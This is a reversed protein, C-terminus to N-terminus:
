FRISKGTEREKEQFEFSNKCKCPFLFALSHATRRRGNRADRRGTVQGGHRQRRRRRARRRYVGRRQRGTLRTLWERGFFHGGIVAAVALRPLERQQVDDDDRQDHGDRQHDDAQHLEFGVRVRLGLLIQEESRGGNTERDTEHRQGDAGQPAVVEASAARLGPADQPVLRAVTEALQFLGIAVRGDIGYSKKLLPELCKKKFILGDMPLARKEISALM